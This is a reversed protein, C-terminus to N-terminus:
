LKKALIRLCVLRNFDEIQNLRTHYASSEICENFCKTINNNTPKQNYHTTQEETILNLRSIEIYDKNLYESISRMINEAAFLGQPAGFGRFAANSPLNTKCCKGNIKVNPCYYANLM